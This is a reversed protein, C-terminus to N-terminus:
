SIWSSGLIKYGSSCHLFFIIFRWSKSSLLAKTLLVSKFYMPCIPLCIFGDRRHVLSYPVVEFLDFKLNCLYFYGSWFVVKCAFFLFCQVSQFLVSIWIKFFHVLSGCKSDHIFIIFYLLDMLGFWHGLYSCAEQCVWLSLFVYSLKVSSRLILSYCSYWHCWKFITTEFVVDM